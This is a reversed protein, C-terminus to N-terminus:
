LGLRTCPLNMVGRESSSPELTMHCRSLILWFARTQASTPVMPVTPAFSMADKRAKWSSIGVRSLMTLEGSDALIGVDAPAVIVRNNLRSRATSPSVMVGMM